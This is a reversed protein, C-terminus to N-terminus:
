VDAVSFFGCSFHSPPNYQRVWCDTLSLYFTKQRVVIYCSDDTVWEPSVCCSIQSNFQWSALLSVNM